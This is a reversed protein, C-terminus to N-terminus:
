FNFFHKLAIHHILQTRRIHELDRHYKSNSRNFLVSGIKSAKIKTAWGKKTKIIVVRIKFM